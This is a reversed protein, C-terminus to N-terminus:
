SPTQLHRSRFQSDFGHGRREAGFHVADVQRTQQAVLVNLNEMIGKHAVQDQEKAILREVEVPQGGEPPAEARRVGM